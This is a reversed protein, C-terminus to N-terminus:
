QLVYNALEFLEKAMPYKLLDKAMGVYQHGQGPFLIISTDRPDNKPKSYAGQKRIKVGKPYPLTSWTQEETQPRADVFTAANDLLGKLPSEKLDKNKDVEQKKDDKTATCMRSKKFLNLISKRTNHVNNSLLCSCRSFYM